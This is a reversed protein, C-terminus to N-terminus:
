ATGNSGVYGTWSGPFTAEHFKARYLYTDNSTSTPPIMTTTLGYFEKRQIMHNRSVVHYSTNANTMDNYTSGLFISAAIRVTGYDTDFINLNNEASNAALSSNMVEKATKYLLFPVVLGEFVHSGADGDQGKQNALTTVCTWLADPALAATELNDVTVGKLTVHSASALAVGDPCLNVAGDFADGYTNLIAKKDQTVRARDGVQTGIRARKGVMDARFAEDSIPVQKTWKQSLVTKQNGILTDSNLIEEQEGTAQFEGVNSDEDWIFGVGVTSGQKFFFNDTARLYGPQQERSYEEYMVGDIGTLVADPSLGGTHGGTGIM